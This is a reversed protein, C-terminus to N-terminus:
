GPPWLLPRGGLVHAHVHFVSQGAEARTNFVLRFAPTGQADAVLTATRVLEAVLDPAAVALETVDLHHERTIVLVHTPAQPNLDRFAITGSSEAVIDAPIDGSAIGCFLCTEV